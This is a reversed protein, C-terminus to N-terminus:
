VGPRLPSIYSLKLSDTWSCIHFPRIQQTQSANLPGCLHLVVVICSFYLFTKNYQLQIESTCVAAICCFKQTIKNCNYQLQIASTRVAKCGALSLYVYSIISCCCCFYCCCCYCCCCCCCYLAVFPNQTSMVAHLLTTRRWIQHLRCTTQKDRTHLVGECFKGLKSAFHHM